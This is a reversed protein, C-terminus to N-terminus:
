PLRTLIGYSGSRVVVNSLAVESRYRVQLQGDASPILIGEIIALYNTLATEVGTGLNMDDTSTHWGFRYGATGDAAIPIRSSATFRTYSPVSLGLGIGVTANTTAFVVGFEFKYYVGNTVYFFLNTVSSVATNTYQGLDATLKVYSDASSASGASELSAVRTNLGNTATQLTGIDTRLVNSASNITSNVYTITALGNTVTATVLGNTATNVYNTTALGNTISSTVLGNTATNVYNTTALGNTISNVYNTTALGNTVSATVLGNTISNVYNTTALGNTVSSTVFGNTASNVYNVTALGNTVSSTVLGNTATNVYNTTALGNTSVTNTSGGSLGNTAANVYARTAIDNAEIFAPFDLIVKSVNYYQVPKLVQGLVSAVGFWFCCLVALAKNM